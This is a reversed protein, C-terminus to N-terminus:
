SIQSNFEHIRRENKKEATIVDIKTKCASLDNLLVTKGATISKDKLEVM